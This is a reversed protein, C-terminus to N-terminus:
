KDLKYHWMVVEENDGIHCIYFCAAYATGHLGITITYSWSPTHTQSNCSLLLLFYNGLCYQWFFCRVLFCSWHYFFFCTSNKPWLIYIYYFASLLVSTWAGKSKEWGHGWRILYRDKPQCRGNCVVGSKLTIVQRYHWTLSFDTKNGCHWICLELLQLLILLLEFSNSINKKNYFLYIWFM